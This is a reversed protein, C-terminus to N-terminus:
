WTVGVRQESSGTGPRGKGFAVSSLRVEAASGKCWPQGFVRGGHRAPCLWQAPALPCCSRLQAPWGWRLLVQLQNLSFFLRSPAPAELWGPLSITRRLAGGLLSRCRKRGLDMALLGKAEALPPPDELFPLVAM